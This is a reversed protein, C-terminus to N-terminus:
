GSGEEQEEPTSRHRNHENVGDLLFDLTVSPDEVTSVVIRGNVVRIDVLSNDSLSIEEAFSKPIRLALSNGWRRVRSRM